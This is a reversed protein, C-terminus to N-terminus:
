PRSVVIWYTSGGSRESDGTPVVRVAYVGPSLFGDLITIRLNGLDSAVFEWRPRRSRGSRDVIEISYSAVAEGVSVILITPLAASVTAATVPEGSFSLTRVM